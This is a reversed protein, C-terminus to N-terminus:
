YVKWPDTSTGSGTYSRSSAFTVIPRITRCQSSPSATNNSTIFKYLNGNYQQTGSGSTSYVTRGCFDYWDGNNYTTYYYYRSAMWYHASSSNVRQAIVTGLINNVLNYDTIYDLDGGGQSEVPNCDNNTNCTWTCSNDGTSCALICNGDTSCTWPAPTTFKSTDTIYETQNSYGFHRSRVTIRPTEYQSALKNLYGVLNKYGTLGNFCVYDRSLYESVADITGDNNIAIIRWLNLESPNITQTSEYGTKSSDLTYSTSVPTYSIYDGLSFSPNYNLIKWPDNATGSGVFKLKSKLTVIPRLSRDEDYSGFSDTDYDYFDDGYYVDGSRDFYRGGWYYYTDDDYEYYRSAAWYYATTNTGVKKAATTGIASDVLEYDVSYGEDGGGQSEQYTCGVDGTTCTYTVPNTVGDVTTLYETQNSYGMHRSGVTIGNTEYQSALVNLYGVFNKYGTLGEFHVTTSSINESVIDVTGNENVNIVRWLTLESPNITDSDEYGTKTTDTTYSTSEPIYSVYDGVSLMSTTIGTPSSLVGTVGSGTGTNINIGAAFSKNMDIANQPAGTEQLWILITYTAKYGTKGNAMLTTSCNPLDIANTSSTLLTATHCLNPNESITTAIATGQTSNGTANTYSSLVTFDNIDEIAGKFVAFYLNEFSNIKPKFNIYITQTVNSSNEVTFEYLTCIENGVDDICSNTELSPYYKFNADQAPVPILKTALKNNSNATFVLDSLNTSGASIANNASGGQASFFAFTAGVIAIVLTAIAIVVLFM